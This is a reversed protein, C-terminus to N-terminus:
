KLLTDLKEALQESLLNDAIIKGQKDILFNHPIANINYLVAVENQSGRLDSLQPWILGDDKITKLWTQRNVDTSVGIIEFGKDKFKNYVKVLNPNETRCPGCWSSSFELLVYKGRFASLKVPKGHQNAQEFDPAIEGVKTQNYSKNLQQVLQGYKSTKLEPDFQKLLGNAEEATFTKDNKSFYLLIIGAYSHLNSQIYTVLANKKATAVSDLRIKISDPSHYATSEIIENRKDQLPGIIKNLEMFSDWLASGSIVMNNNDGKEGTIKMDQKDTWFVVSLDDATVGSDKVRGISVQEPEGTYKFHLQGNRAICSDLGVTASGNLYYKDKDKLGKIDASITITNQKKAQANLNLVIFTSLLFLLLSKM